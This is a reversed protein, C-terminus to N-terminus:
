SLLHLLITSVSVPLKDTTTSTKKTNELGERFQAVTYPDPAKKATGTRAQHSNLVDEPERLM